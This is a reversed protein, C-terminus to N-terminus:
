LQRLVIAEVHDLVETSSQARAVLLAGQLGAVLSEALARADFVGHFEGAARGRRVASEIWTISRALYASVAPRLADPLTALDSALSGCLCIAGRDGTARYLDVFGTLRAAESTTRGELRALAADLRDTYRRMLAAGLDGKAPFHYHISATRIGVEAALDRYSFANFGREIVLREASDLLQDATDNGM